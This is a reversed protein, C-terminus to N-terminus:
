KCATERQTTKTCMIRTTENTCTKQTKKRKDQQTSQQATAIDHLTSPTFKKYKRWDHGKRMWRRTMKKRWNLGCIEPTWRQCLYIEHASQKTDNMQNIWSSTSGSTSSKWPSHKETTGKGGPPVLPCRAFIHNLRPAEADFACPESPCPHRIWKQRKLLPLWETSPTELCTRKLVRAEVLSDKTTNCIQCNWTINVGRTDIDYLPDVFSMITCTHEQQIRNHKTATCGNRSAQEYQRKYLKKKENKKHEMWAYKDDNDGCTEQTHKTTVSGSHGEKKKYTQKKKVAIAMQQVHTTKLRRRANRHGKKQKTWADM